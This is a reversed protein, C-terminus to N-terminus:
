HVRSLRPRIVDSDPPREHSLVGVVPVELVDTVVGVGRDIPSVRLQRRTM